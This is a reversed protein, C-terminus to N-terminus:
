QFQLRGRTYVEKISKMYEQPTLEVGQGTSTTAGCVWYKDTRWQLNSVPIGYVTSKRIPGVVVKDKIITWPYKHGNNNIYVIIDEYGRKLLVTYDCIM